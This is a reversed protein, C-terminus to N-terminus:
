QVEVRPDNYDLWPLNPNHQLVAIDYKNAPVVLKLIGRNNLFIGYSPVPNPNTNTEM